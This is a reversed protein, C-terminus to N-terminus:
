HFPSQDLIVWSASACGPGMCPIWVTKILMSCACLSFPFSRINCMSILINSCFSPQFQNVFVWTNGWNQQSTRSESRGLPEKNKRITVSLGSLRSSCIKLVSWYNNWTLYLMTYLKVHFCEWQEKIDTKRWRHKDFLELWYSICM